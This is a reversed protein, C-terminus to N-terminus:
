TFVKVRLASCDKLLTAMAYRRSGLSCPLNQHYALAAKIFVSQCHRYQVQRSM